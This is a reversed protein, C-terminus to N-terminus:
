MYYRMYGEQEDVIASMLDGWARWTLEFTHGDAAEFHHRNAMKGGTTGVIGERECCERIGRVYPRWEPKFRGLYESWGPESQASQRTCQMGRRGQSM